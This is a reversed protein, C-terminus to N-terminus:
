KNSLNKYAKLGAAPEANKVASIIAKEMAEAAAVALFIQDDISVLEVEATAATFIIDGDYMTHVPNIARAFGDHAAQSIKTAETKTVKANTLVIGLTTNTGEFVEPKYGNIIEDKTEKLKTGSEDLLGAIQEGNEYVDGLANVAAVASVVLGNDFVLTHSGIGSKMAFDLGKLKGIVAGTGAGHNGLEFSNNNARKCAEYGMQAGPRVKPNGIELDYLVAGTVIPVKAPGTDFGIGNEELYKVVGSMADLGFASGGSLVVAHIKDVLNVPNLLDTERTGPASGRVDVGATAGDEFLFVTVGTQGERNEAHGIKLGKIKFIDNANNM